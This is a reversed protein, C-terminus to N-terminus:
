KMREREARIQSLIDMIETRNRSLIFHVNDQTGYAGQLAAMMEANGLLMERDVAELRFVDGFEKSPVGTVALTRAHMLTNKAEALPGDFVAYRGRIFTIFDHYQTLSRRLPQSEILELRGSSVLETFVTSPGPPAAMATVESMDVLLTEEDFQGNRVGNILRGAAALYRAQSSLGRETRELIQEFDQELRELAVRADARDSRAENWNNVQLGIFVGLVVILIEVCVTFWDQKRFATALRRLIM